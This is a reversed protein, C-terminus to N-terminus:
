EVGLEDALAIAEDYWKPFMGDEQAKTMAENVKEMLETEGKKAIVVTDDEASIFKYEALDIEDYNKAFQIGPECATAVADVKGTTLLIVGDGLTSIPEIVVDTPLEVGIYGYQISGLQAAITTGAFSEATNYKSVNEKLVLLGNAENNSSQWTYGISCELNKEREATKAFASVSIDVGGAPVAALCSNFDMQEIVLEVGIYDAIYKALEVDCGVVADQGTKNVDIFENPAFDPSIAVVLKGSDLVKELANAPEEKSSSCGVLSVLIMTSLLISLIKRM